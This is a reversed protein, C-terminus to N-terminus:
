LSFIPSLHLYLIVLGLIVLYIDLLLYSVLVQVVKLNGKYNIQLDILLNKLNSAIGNKLILYNLVDNFM